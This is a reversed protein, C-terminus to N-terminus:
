IGVPTRVEPFRNAWANSEWASKWSLDFHGDHRDAAVLDLLTSGRVGRRSAPLDGRDKRTKLQELLDDIAILDRAERSTRLPSRTRALPAVDTETVGFIGALEAVSLRYSGM